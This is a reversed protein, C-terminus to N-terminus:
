KHGIRTAWRRTPSRMVCREWGCDRQYLALANEFPTAPKNKKNTLAVHWVKHPSDLGHPGLVKPINKLVREVLTFEEQKYSHLRAAELLTNFHPLVLARELSDGEFVARWKGDARQVYHLPAVPVGAIVCAAGIVHMAGGIVRAEKSPRGIAKAYLAYDCVHGALVRQAFHPAVQQAIEVASAMSRSFGM